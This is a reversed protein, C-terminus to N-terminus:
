FSKILRVREIKRPSISLITQPIPLEDEPDAEIERDGTRMLIQTIETFRLSSKFVWSICLWLFLDDASAKPIGAAPWGIWTTSFFDVAELLQYKDVLVALDTLPILDDVRRPVKKTRGHIIDLLITFADPDDDPLTIEAKGRSQLESGERFHVSLMAAFVTSALTMHKSSVLMHIDKKPDRQPYEPQQIVSPKSGRRQLVGPFTTAVAPVTASAGDGSTITETSTMTTAATTTDEEHRPFVLLVDGNPDFIRTEVSM